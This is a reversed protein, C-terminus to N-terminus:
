RRASACGARAFIVREEGLFRTLRRPEFLTHSTRSPEVGLLAKGYIELPIM